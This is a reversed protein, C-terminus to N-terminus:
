AVALLLRDDDRPPAGDFGALPEFSDPEIAVESLGALNFLGLRYDEPGRWNKGPNFASVYLADGRAFLQHPALTMVGGNYSARVMRRESIAQSLTEAIHVRDNHIHQM